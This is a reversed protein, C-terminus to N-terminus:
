GWRPQEDLSIGLATKGVVEHTLFANAPHLRGLRADRLLREYGASRFIGHGGAVDLGLDVVRWSAEVARYKAAFIKLPWEAGYDVGNSWDEAIRDLHPGISELEIVMEAIAHQIEPHYAMPRSLALSNKNKAAAISKDLARRALGYYVNAFGLLAWAFVSLVFADIGAGGAPVIRAVYRDPIFANELVTDDSRTARMGLVDWTEKIIYGRNDRLMFAHVVKPHAPDSTDMGHLGFRTWVPTLSGFQKRGSFCYGGDVREAKASSLLVPIDNGSEAHGAAFIEGAAADRLMWQLSEDGRRWLDAAVGVWYLHMNVALATAPAHYALRRQERCVEALSLGPGGFKEPAPMVLYKTARLEEFDQDFFRNERDYIAARSDFRALMEETLGRGTSLESATRCTKQSGGGDRSPDPFTAEPITAM